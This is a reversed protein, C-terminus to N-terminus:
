RSCFSRLSIGNMGFVSYSGFSCLYRRNRTNRNRFLGLLVCGLVNFILKIGTWSVKVSKATIGLKQVLEEEDDSMLYPQQSFARELELVENPSFTTRQWKKRPLQMSSTPVEDPESDCDTSSSTIDSYPTLPPSTERHNPLSSSCDSYPSLPPSIASHFDSSLCLCKNSM